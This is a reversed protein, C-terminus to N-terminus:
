KTTFPADNVGPLIFTSSVSEPLFQLHIYTQVQLGLGEDHREASLSCGSHLGDGLHAKDGEGLRFSKEEDVDSEVNRALQSVREINVRPFYSPILYVRLKENVVEFHDIWCPYSAAADSVLPTAIMLFASLKLPKSWSFIAM